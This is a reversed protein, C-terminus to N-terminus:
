AAAIEITSSDGVKFEISFKVLDNTPAESSLATIVMKGLITLGAYKLRVWIYPQTRNKVANAYLVVLDKIGLEKSKPRKRWEGDGSISFDSNTILTEPFGGADDAESTVSNPSFVWSKTTMAGAVKWESEQPKADTTGYELVVVRGVVLNEANNQPSPSGM